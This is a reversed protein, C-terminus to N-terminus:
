YWITVISVSFIIRKALRHRKIANQHKEPLGTAFNGAPQLVNNLKQQRHCHKPLPQLFMVALPLTRCVKKLNQPSHNRQPLRAAVKSYAQLLIKKKYPYQKIDDKLGIAVFMSYYLKSNGDTNNCPGHLVRM